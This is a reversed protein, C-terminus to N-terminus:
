YRTRDHEYSGSLIGFVYTLRLISARKIVSSTMLITRISRISSPQYTKLIEVYAALGHLHFAYLAVVAHETCSKTRARMALGHISYDM